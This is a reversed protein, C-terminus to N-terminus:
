QKIDKKFGDAGHLFMNVLLDVQDVNEKMAPLQKKEWFMRILSIFFLPEMYGRPKPIGDKKSAESIITKITDMHKQFRKLVVMRHPCALALRTQSFQLFFDHNKKLFDLSTQATQWLLKKGQFEKQNLLIQDLENLLDDHVAVMIQSKDKFHLYLTGKALNSKSAVDEMRVDEFRKQSLLIRAARLIQKRRVDRSETRSRTTKSKVM